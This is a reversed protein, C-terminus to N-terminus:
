TVAVNREVHAALANYGILFLGVAVVIACGHIVLRWTRRRREVQAATLPKPKKKSKKSNTRYKAMRDSVVDASAQGRSFPM